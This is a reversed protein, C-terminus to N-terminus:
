PPQGPYVACLQGPVLLLMLVFQVHPQSCCGGAPPYVHVPRLQQCCADCVLPSQRQSQTLQPGQAAVPAISVCAGGHMCTNVCAHECAHVCPCGMQM